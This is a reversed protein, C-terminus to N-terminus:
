KGNKEAFDRMFDRLTTIGEIPMANYISARMGGVSRHGKLTQLNREAAESVFKKELEPSPLRFTVNMLSRDEPQAHGQYFGNSADVVDYLMKAKQQNLEHMKALGGIDKILWKLVLGMLYIAFTPPTNWMSDEKAHNKFNLYGPLTDQSRELLENKIIVVTVGSPGANKQACAYLVGYRNIDLPRYLFDSSSDCVLPAGNTAPEDAFQIGQITENSTIHVYPAKPNISLDANKPLRDYNTEKGDWVVRVKGERVAEVQATKGWTGTLVYDAAESQGRLLNMPIMSFQLRSGGQLFLTTYDDPINLLQKLNAKAENAIAIFEDSRHSIELVSAGVGPLCVLDRQAEELVALPLVAPGSSFNYVRKSAAGAM